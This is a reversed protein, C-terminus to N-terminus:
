SHSPLSPAAAVKSSLFKSSSRHVEFVVFNKRSSINATYPICATQIYHSLLRPFEQRRHYKITQITVEETHCHKGECVISYYASRYCISHLEHHSCRGGGGGGGGGGGRGGGGGGGGGGSRRTVSRKTHIAIAHTSVTALVRDKTIAIAIVEPPSDRLLQETALIPLDMSTMFKSNYNQQIITKNTNRSLM